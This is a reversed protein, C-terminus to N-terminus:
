TKALRAELKIQELWAKTHHELIDFDKTRTIITRGEDAFAAFQDGLTVLVTLADVPSFGMKEAFKTIQNFTQPHFNVTVQIPEVAQQNDVM